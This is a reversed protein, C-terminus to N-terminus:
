IDAGDAKIDKAEKKTHYLEVALIKLAEYFGFLTLYNESIRNKIRRYLLDYDIKNFFRTTMGPIKALKNFHASSM